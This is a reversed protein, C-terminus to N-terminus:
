GALAEATGEDTILHNAYGGALAARIMPVKEARGLGPRRRSHRRPRRCPPRRRLRQPSPRGPPGGRRPLHLAPRRRCRRRRARRSEADGLLGIRRNTAGPGLTGVSVLAIDARRARDLVDRLGPRTWSCTACRPRPPSPPPPSTTASPAWRRPSARPPRTCTSRPAAASAAWSRWSPRPGAVDRRRLARVSWHLTRGWGVGLTQGPRLRDSLWSGLAMGLTAPLHAPIRRAHARGRGGQPRLPARLRRELAVCSALRGNIQIQVLGPRAASRCTACSRSGASASGARRDRGPDHGRRLLALRDAHPAARRDLAPRARHHAPSREEDPSRPLADRADDRAPRSSRRAPGGPRRPRPLLLPRAARPRPRGRPPLLRPRRRTRRRDPRRRRRRMVREIEACRCCSRSCGSASRPGASPSAATSGRRHRRRRLAQPAGGALCSPAPPRLRARLPGRRDAPAGARPPEAAALMAAQLRAMRGPPSASRSATCPAPIRAPSAHRHFPQDLARGDLRLPQHPDGARRPRLPDAAPDARLMAGLDGTPLRDAARLAAARRRAM